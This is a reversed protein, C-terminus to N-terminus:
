IGLKSIKDHFEGQLDVVLTKGKPTKLKLWPANSVPRAPLFSRGPMFKLGDLISIKYIKTRHNGFISWTKITVYEDYFSEIKLVYRGNLWLVAVLMLNSVILFTIMWCYGTFTSSFELLFGELDSFILVAVFCSLVVSVLTVFYL